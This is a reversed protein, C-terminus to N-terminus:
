RLNKGEDPHLQSFPILSVVSLLAMAMFTPTFTALALHVGDGGLGRSFFGLLTAAIVVGLASTTQQAMAVLATAHSMHETPVDSFGVTNLSVLCLSTFMGGLFFTGFLVWHPMTPTLFGYGGLFIAAVVNAILFLTRFSLRAMARKMVLRTGLSGAAVGSAMFGANLPSFGFGLQLMLPVLFPSSANALRFPTAGVVNTRLTKYRLIRLDIVPAPIRLSHSAYLGLLVVGGAVLAYSGWSDVLGRGFAEIGGLTAGLGLGMLVFGRFDFATSKMEGEDTKIFALALLVAILGLPINVLFIWRWSGLTVIAGGILPGLLRGIAPPITFWVMAALMESAPISRLLILRGVPVMLAAGFGQFIRCAVLVTASNALGCLASAAAFIVIAICFMRKAGFRDALWASLPLFAALSIAYAAIVLNLHLPKVHLSTAMNPVAVTTAMLDVNQLFMPAAVIMPIINSRRAM